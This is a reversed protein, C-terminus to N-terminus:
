ADGQKASSDGAPQKAKAPEETKAPQETKPREARVPEGGPRRLAEKAAKAKDGLSGKSGAIKRLEDADQKLSETGGRKEVLDKAKNSLRKLDMDEEENPSRDIPAGPNSGPVEAV